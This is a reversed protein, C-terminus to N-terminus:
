PVGVRGADDAVFIISGCGGADGMRNPPPAAMTAAASARCRDWDVMACGGGVAEGGGDDGSRPEAKTASARCFASVEGISVVLSAREGGDDGPQPTPDPHSELKLQGYGGPRHIVIKEM